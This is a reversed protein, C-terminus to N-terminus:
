GQEAEELASLYQAFRIYRFMWFQHFAAIYAYMKGAPPNIGSDTAELYMNFSDQLEARIHDQIVDFRTPDEHCLEIMADDSALTIFNGNHILIPGIDTAKIEFSM